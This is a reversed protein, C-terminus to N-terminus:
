RKRIAALIAEAARRGSLLAGQISATERYDGCVYIRDGGAAISTSNSMWTAIKQLPVANKIPYAGLVQWKATEGPFWREMHTRVDQELQIMSAESEPAQDLVSAAILEAGAPAYAASVQSLVALNNVPGAKRGEGNLLIIPESIPAKEAGYYFTTTSNWEHRPGLRDAVRGGGGVTSLLALAQHEDTAVAVARTEIAPQGEVVVSWNKKGRVMTKVRTNLELTGPKLRAAIQGSIGGMGLEPVATNGASFMRFLYEFWRSSTILEKELFVGGFFPAFFRNVMNESFGYEILFRYTTVQSRGFLDSEKGRRVRARLTAVRIKDALSVVPDTLLGLAALPDRFPDAFRHFRGGCWVMAGPKLSKLKLADLDLFAPAESYATLLVQFGRDLRFGDVLDTRVRGGPADDAELLAVELGGQELLVACALGALGAGVIVVDKM